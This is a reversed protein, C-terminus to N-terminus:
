STNIMLWVSNLFAASGDAAKKNKVPLGVVFWTTAPEPNEQKLLRRSVCM